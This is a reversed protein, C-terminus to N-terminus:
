CILSLVQTHFDFSITVVTSYPDPRNTGRCRGFRDAKEPLHELVRTRHWSHREFGARAGRPVRMRETLRENDRATATPRLALAAKNLLNPGTVHDPKWGALPAPMTSRGGRRHRVDGNM